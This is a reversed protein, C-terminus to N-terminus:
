QIRLTYSNRDKKCLGSGKVYYLIQNVDRDWEKRKRKKENKKVLDLTSSLYFSKGEV